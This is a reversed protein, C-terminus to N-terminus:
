TFTKGGGGSSLIYPQLGCLGADARDAIEICHRQDPTEGVGRVGCKAVDEIEAKRQRRQARLLHRGAFGVDSNQGYDFRRPLLEVIKRAGADGAM